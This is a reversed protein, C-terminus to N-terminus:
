DDQFTKKFFLSYKNQTNLIIGMFKQVMTCLYAANAECINYRHMTYFILLLKFSHNWLLLIFLFHFVYHCQHQFYGPSAIHMALMAKSTIKLVATHICVEIHNRLYKIPNLADPADCKSAPFRRQIVLENSGANIVDFLLIDINTSNEDCGIAQNIALFENISNAPQPQTIYATGKYGILHM